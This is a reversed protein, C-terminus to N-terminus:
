YRFDEDTLFQIDSVESFVLEYPPEYPFRQTPYPKFFIRHPLHQYAKRILDRNTDFVLSETPTGLGPRVNASHTYTSIHFVATESSKIGLRKRVVFRQLRSHSVKRVKDALGITHVAKGAADHAKEFSAKASNSSVMLADCSTIESYEIKEQSLASLGTTVGHEFDIVKIGRARCLGYIQAGIPGFLGNTLLFTPQRNQVVINELRKELAASSQKMADLGAALHELTNEKIAECQPPSFDTISALSKDIIEGVLPRLIASINKIADRDPVYGPATILKGINKLGFGYTLLWPMTERLAENEGGIYIQRKKLVNLRSIKLVRMLLFGVPIMAVKLFINKTGTENVSEPLVVEVPYTSVSLGDFFGQESLRPYPAAFRSSVFPTNADLAPQGASFLSIQKLNKHKALARSM